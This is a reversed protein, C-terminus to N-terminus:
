DKAGAKAEKKAAPKKAKAPAKKAKPAAKATVAKEQAPAEKGEVDEAKPQNLINAIGPASSIKKVNKLRQLGSVPQNKYLCCKKYKKWARAASHCRYGNKRM